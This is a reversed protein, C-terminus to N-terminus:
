KPEHKKEQSKGTRNEKFRRDLEGDNRIKFKGSLIRYINDDIARGISLNNEGTIKSKLEELDIFVKGKLKPLGLMMWNFRHITINNIIELIENERQQRGMEQWYEALKEKMDTPNTM